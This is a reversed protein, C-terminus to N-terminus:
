DGGIGQWSSRAILAEENAFLTQMQLRGLVFFIGSALYIIGAFLIRRPTMGHEAIFTIVAAISVVLAYATHSFFQANYLYFEQLFEFHPFLDKHLKVINEPVTAARIGKARILLLVSEAVIKPPGVFVQFLLRKDHWFSNFVSKRKNPDDQSHSTEYYGIISWDIGHIVMGAGVCLGGLFLQAVTPATGWHDVAAKLALVLSDPQPAGFLTYYLFGLSLVAVAGPFLQAMIFGFTLKSFFDKM